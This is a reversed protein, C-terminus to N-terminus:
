VVAAPIVNSEYRLVGESKITRSSDRTKKNGMNRNNLTNWFTCNLLKGFELTYKVGKESIM